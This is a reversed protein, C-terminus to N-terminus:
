LSARTIEVNYSDENNVCVKLNVKFVLEAENELSDQIKGSYIFKRKM